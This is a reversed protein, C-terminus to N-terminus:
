AGDLLGNCCAFAVGTGALTSEHRSAAPQARRSRAATTGKFAVETNAASRCTM